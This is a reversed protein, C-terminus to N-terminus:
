MNITLGLVLTKAQPYNNYDKGNYAEPNLGNYSSITFLNQASFYLRGQLKSQLIDKLQYGIEFNDLQVFSAKKVYYDSKNNRNRFGSEFVNKTLNAPLNKYYANNADIQNFVHHGLVARVNLAVDWNKYYLQSSLGLLYDPLSNKISYNDLYGNNTSVDIPKGNQDYLQKYFNFSYLSEGPTHIINTEDPIIYKNFDLTFKDLENKNYSANFQLNWKLQKSIFPQTFVTFELGKNTIYGLNQIKYNSYGNGFYSSVLGLVNKHHLNYYEVTASLRNNLSVFDIAINTSHHREPVLRFDDMNSKGQIGYSARLKLEDFLTSEKLLQEKGLNWELGIGSYEIYYDSNKAKDRRYATKIAYKGLFELDFENGYSRLDKKQRLRNFQVSEGYRINDGSEERDTQNQYYIRTNIMSIFGDKKHQYEFKIKQLNTNLRYDSDEFRLDNYPDFSEQFERVREADIINKSVQASLSLEKLFPFYYKANFQWYEQNTTLKNKSNNIRWLPNTYYWRGYTKQYYQKLSNEDALQTPDFQYADSIANIEGVKEDIDAINATFGIQLSEFFEKSININLNNRKYNSNKLIGDKNSLGFGLRYKFTNLNGAASLYHDRGFGTRYVEDQWDTNSNGMKDLHSTAIDPYNIMVSRYEDANLVDIKNRCFSFSASNSFSIDLKRKTNSEKTKILIVGKHSGLGYTATETANKLIEISEIDIPNITSWLNGFSNSSTTVPMGNLYILPQEDRNLSAAGRIMILFNEGPAGNIPNIQVGSIRGKILDQWAVFDGKNFPNILNKLTDSVLSSVVDKSNLSDKVNRNQKLHDAKLCHILLFCFFLISVFRKM